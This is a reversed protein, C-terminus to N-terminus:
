DWWVRLLQRDNQEKEHSFSGLMACATPGDIWDIDDAVWTKALLELDDESGSIPLIYLTSVNFCKDLDRLMILGSRCFNDKPLVCCDSIMMASKWLSRNEKLSKVVFEGDFDNFTALKMLELQLEQAKSENM